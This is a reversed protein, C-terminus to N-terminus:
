PRTVDATVFVSGAVVTTVGGASDTLQLDWVGALCSASAAADLAVDIINPLTVTVALEAFGPDDPRSRMQAAVAVGTLDVPSTGASDHWLVFRWGATDGRYINLTYRTPGSTPTTTTRPATAVV